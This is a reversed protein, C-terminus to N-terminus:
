SQDKTNSVSVIMITYELPCLRILNVIFLLTKKFNYNFSLYVSTFVFCFCVIIFFYIIAVYYNKVNILQNMKNSINFFCEIVLYM